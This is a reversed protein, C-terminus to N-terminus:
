AKGGVRRGRIGGLRPRREKGEWSAANMKSKGHLNEYVGVGGRGILKGGGVGLIAVSKRGGL